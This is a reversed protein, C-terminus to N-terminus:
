AAHQRPDIPVVTKHMEPVFFRYNGRGNKKAFYMAQDAKVKLLAIDMADDPYISIGISGSIRLEHDQVLFPRALEVLVKGAVTAAHRSNELEDLLIVFEDGGTRAVTDSKRVCASLRQAVVKLLDDGVGHGFSDNVPKFRDLDVFMLGFSTQGRDASRAAKLMRDHLLARNALGTLGDYLALSSLETNAQQLTEARRASHAASHADLSAVALTIILLTITAAGIIVALSTATMGNGSGLSLCFSGPAFRSAAMGTYHMGTIAFGMITASGLKALMAAGFNQRRLQFAIWLAAFSAAVAIGISAAFLAPDYQIPPSMQMAAMGTYHMASIGAAMLTAGATLNWATLRRSQLVFLALGSVLVAIAMSLVTPGAAYAVDVPLHFALMGIFHMSWIGAGMSVAGGVLWVWSTTGRSQSVRGALELATYSAFIAVIVSLAVLQFNYTATM